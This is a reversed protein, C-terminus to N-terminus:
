EGKSDFPFAISERFNMAKLSLLGELGYKFDKKYSLNEDNFTGFLRDWITLVEGFNSNSEAFNTSHHIRHFAPTVLFFSLKHSLNPNISFNAHCFAAHFVVILGYLTIAWLSLGLVGCFGLMLLSGLLLELPHHFISTIASLHTESHHLKHLKWLVLVKHFLRHFLYALFDLILLSFILSISLPISLHSFDMLRAYALVSVLIPLISPLLFYNLLFGILWILLVTRSINPQDQKYPHKKELFRFVVLSFILVFINLYQAFSLEM